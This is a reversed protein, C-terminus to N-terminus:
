AFTGVRQGNETARDIGMRIHQLRDAGHHNTAILVLDRVLDVSIRHERDDDIQNIFEIGIQILSLSQQM